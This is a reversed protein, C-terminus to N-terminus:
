SGHLDGDDPRCELVAGRLDKIEKMKENTEFLADYCKQQTDYTQSFSRTEMDNLMGDVPGVMWWVILIWKM